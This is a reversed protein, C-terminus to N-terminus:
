PLESIAALAAVAQRRRGIIHDALPEDSPAEGADARPATRLRKRRIARFAHHRVIGRLWGPFAAPEALAPLATWAAVFAEQVIDEAQQFDRVQALASGFAFQQFHRPLDGCANVDGGSARRVLQEHDMAM